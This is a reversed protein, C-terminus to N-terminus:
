VNTKREEIWRRLAMAAGEYDRAKFKQGTIASAKLMMAKPTWMRNPLIKHKSWLKLGSELTIAVYISVQDQGVFMTM